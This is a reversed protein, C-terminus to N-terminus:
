KDTWNTAIRGKLSFGFLVSSRQRPARQVPLPATPACSLSFPAVQRLTCPDQPRLSRRAREGVGGVALGTWDNRTSRGAARRRSRMMRTRKPLVRTAAQSTSAANPDAPLETADVPGTARSGAGDACSDRRCSSLRAVRATPDSRDPTACVSTLREGICCRPPGDSSSCRRRGGLVEDYKM